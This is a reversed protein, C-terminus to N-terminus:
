LLQTINNNIFPPFSFPQTGNLEHVQIHHEWKGTSVSTYHIFIYNIQFSRTLYHQKEKNVNHKGKESQFVTPRNMQQMMTCPARFYICYFTLLFSNFCKQIDQCSLSEQWYAQASPCANMTCLLVCVRTHIVYTCLVRTHSVSVVFKQRLIDNLCRFPKLSM